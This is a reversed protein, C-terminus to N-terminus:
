AITAQENGHFGMRIMHVSEGGRKGRLELALATVLLKFM